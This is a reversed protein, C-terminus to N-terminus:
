DRTRHVLKTRGQSAPPGGKSSVTLKKAKLFTKAFVGSGIDKWEMDGKRVESERVVPSPHNRRVLSIPKPEVPHWTADQFQVVPGGAEAYPLSEM